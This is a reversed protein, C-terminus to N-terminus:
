IGRMISMHWVKSFGNTGPAGPSGSVAGGEMVKGGPSGGGSRKAKPPPSNVEKM